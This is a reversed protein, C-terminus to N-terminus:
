AMFLDLNTWSKKNHHGNEFYYEVLEEMRDSYRTWKSAKPVRPDSCAYTKTDVEILAVIPQVGKRDFCIIRVPQGKRTVVPHGQKALELNFPKM